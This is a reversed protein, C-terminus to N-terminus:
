RHFGQWKFLFDQPALFPIVASFHWLKQDSRQIASWYKCYNRSARTRKGGISDRSTSSSTQHRQVLIVASFHWLKEDSRQIASLTKSYIESGTKRSTGRSDRSTSSSTKYRQVPIVASFPWLKQDFRQIMSLYKCYNESGTKRSTGISDLQHFLLGQRALSSYSSFLNM